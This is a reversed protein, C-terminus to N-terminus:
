IMKILTIMMTMMTTMTMMMMMKKTVTTMTKMTMPMMMTMTMVMMMMQSYIDQIQITLADEVGFRLRGCTRSGSSFILCVCVHVSVCEM